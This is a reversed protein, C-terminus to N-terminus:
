TEEQPSSVTTSPSRTATTRTALPLAAVFRGLQRQFQAIEDATWGALAGGVMQQGAAVLRAYAEAGAETLRVEVTRGSRVRDFLGQASMRSVLKSTTPRSLGGGEALRSFPLAGGNMGVLYLARVESAELPSDTSEAVTVRLNTQTWEAVVHVLSDRIGEVEDSAIM